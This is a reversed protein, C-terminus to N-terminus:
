FIKFKSLEIRNIQNQIGLRSKLKQAANKNKFEHM